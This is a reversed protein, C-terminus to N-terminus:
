LVVRNWCSSDEATNHVEEEEEFVDMSVAGEVCEFDTTGTM